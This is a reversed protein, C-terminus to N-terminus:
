GQIIYNYICNMIEEEKPSDTEDHAYVSSGMLRIADESIITTM